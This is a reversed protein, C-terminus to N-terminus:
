IENIHQIRDSMSAGKGATSVQWVTGASWQKNAIWEFSNKSLCAEGKTQQSRKVPKSWAALVLWIYTAIGNRFRWALLLVYRTLSCFNITPRGSARKWQPASFIWSLVNKCLSLASVRNVAVQDDTGYRRYRGSKQQSVFNFQQQTKKSKLNFQQEAKQTKSTQHPAFAFILSLRWLLCSQFLKLVEPRSRNFIILRPHFYSSVCWRNRTWVCRDANWM